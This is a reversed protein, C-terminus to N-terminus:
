CQRILKRLINFNFDNLQEKNDITSHLEWWVDVIDIPFSTKEYMYAGANRYVIFSSIFKYDFNNNAFEIIGYYYDSYYDTTTIEELLLEMLLIYTDQTIEHM